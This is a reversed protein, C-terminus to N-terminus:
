KFWPQREWLSVSMATQGASSPHFCDKAIIQPLVPAEFPRNSYFIKLNSYKAAAAEASAKILNNKQELHSMWKQYDAPTKWGTFQRCLSIVNDYWTGCKLGGFTRHKRIDAKGLDALRGVGVNLVRIPEEQRIGALKEYIAAFNSVMQADPSTGENAANCIDNAGAMLAVYKLSKYKGSKMAEVLGDTQLLVDKTEAGFKAMNIVELTSGPETRNLYHTLFTFHSPIVAGSFWSLNKKNELLDKPHFGKNYDKPDDFGPGLLTGSLLSTNALFGALISDGLAGMLYPKEAAFSAPASIMLFLAPILLKLKM